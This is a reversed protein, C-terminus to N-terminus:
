QRPQRGSELPEGGNGARVSRVPRDARESNTVGVAPIAVIGTPAAARALAVTGIVLVAASTAILLWAGTSADIREGLADVGVFVAIVPDLIMTAPFSIELSGAQFALQQTVVGLAGSAVLAYFEWHTLVLLARHGLLHVVSKTLASAFGVCTGAVIAFGLARGRGSAFRAASGVVIVIGGCVFIATWWDRLPATDLGGDADSAVIFVALALCLAVAWLVQTRSIPRNNWRAGLPLAFVLSTVLVPQVVLLSGAALAVAQFAYGLVNGFTAALWRPTRLLRFMLRIGGADVNTAAAQQQAVAGVAFLAAAALALSGALWPM